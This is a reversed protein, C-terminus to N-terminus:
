SCSNYNIPTDCRQHLIAYGLESRSVDTGNAFSGLFYGSDGRPNCENPYNIWDFVGRYNVANFRTNGGPNTLPAVVRSTYVEPNFIITVEFPANEYAPNVISQEGYTTASDVYFPVRVYQGGSFVYRPAQWDKIHHFGGFSEIAGLPGLLEEVQSSYRFDQRIEYNQKVIYDSAEPSMIAAFQPAGRVMSYAGLGGSDRMLRGYIKKLMGDDLAKVNAPAVAPFASTSEPLGPAAVIKHDLVRLYEDRYRNEWFYKTNEGLIGFMQQLQNKFDYGFRIDNICLTPTRVEAQALNYSRITQAYELLQPTPNCTSGTGTNLGLPTWASSTVNPIVTRQWVIKSIGTGKGEQFAEQKILRNWASTAIAKPGVISDLKGSETVLISNVDDCYAM